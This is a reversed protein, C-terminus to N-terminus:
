SQDNREDLFQLVQLTDGRILEEGGRQIAWKANPPPELPSVTLGQEIAFRWLQEIKDPTPTASLGRPTMAREGDVGARMEEPTALHARGDNIMKALVRGEFEPFTEAM